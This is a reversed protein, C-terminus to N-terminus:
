LLRSQRKTRQPPQWADEARMLIADLTKQSIYAMDTVAEVEVRAHIERIVTNINQGVASLDKVLEVLLFRKPTAM